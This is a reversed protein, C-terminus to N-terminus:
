AAEGNFPRPGIVGPMAGGAAVELVDESTGCCAGAVCGGSVLSMWAVGGSLM